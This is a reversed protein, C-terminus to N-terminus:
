RRRRVKKRPPEDDEDIEERVIDGDPTILESGVREQVVKRM